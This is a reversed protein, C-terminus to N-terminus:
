KKLNSSDLKFVKFGVDLQKNSYENLIKEGARRIREKGIEAITKYGARFAESKEDVPEPIQVMIFKRKGNDESNLRLITHATTSSGSFFDLITSNKGNILDFINKLLKVSKPFEFVPNDFLEKIENSGSATTAIDTLIINKPPVSGIRKKNNNDVFEYNKFYVFYKGKKKVFEIFGNKLGWNVKDQSWRWNWMGSPINLGGPYITEDNPLKIPYVLSQSFHSATFTGDLKQREYKGRNNEYEDSYKWNGKKMGLKIPVISKTKSYVLIYETVTVINTGTNSGGTSQWVIQSIFNDEGFIENCIKKLNEVENDDISIFIVGDDTLLNRALKLRPYMMNLWITHYRGSTEPNSTLKM